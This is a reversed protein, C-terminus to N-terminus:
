PDRSGEGFALAAAGYIGADDGLGAEVIPTQRFPPMAREAVVRTVPDLVLRGANTVGGGLIVMAPDFLHLANVVGVGLWDMARAVVAAALRDGARAAAFVDVATAGPRLVSPEGARLREDAQRAIATGSALAELCGRGGCGCAPGDAQVVLHGLEGAYGHAGHLIAGGVIVGGGVGTSVTFYVLNDVGRGAGAQWEGLAAVNADNDVVVPVGLRGALADALPTEAPWRPFNPPRLMVGRRPDLPGPAAVGVREIPEGALVEHAAAIMRDLVNPFGEEPRTALRTVREPPVGPARVFAVRLRTGGLDIALVAM